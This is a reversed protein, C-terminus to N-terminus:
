VILNVNQYTVSGNGPTASQAYSGNVTCRNISNAIENGLVEYVRWMHNDEIGNFMSQFLTLHFNGMNAPPVIINNSQDNPKFTLLRVEREIGRVWDGFSNRNFLSAPTIHVPKSKWTYLGNLPDPYSGSNNTYTGTYTGKLELNNQLYISLANAFETQADFHDSHKTSNMADFLHQGLANM